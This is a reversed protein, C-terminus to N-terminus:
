QLNYDIKYKVGNKELEIRTTSIATITMGDLTDGKSLIRGNVLVYQSVDGFLSNGTVSYKNSIDISGTSETTFIVFNKVNRIGNIEGVASLFTAFQEEDQANARGAFILEGNSFQFSVGGFGRDILMKQIQTNLINEVVIQNDLLNLYPFFANIYEQLKVAEEETALYGRVVFRGPQTATVLVGRWNPNKLILANMQDFVREDIVVNDETCTIFTMCKILYLMEGHESDTLVHGTLFLKGCSPNYSFQVGPFPALTEKIAKSEDYREVVITQGRFLALVGVVGVFLVVAFISAMILHRTPVFVEKINKPEPIQEPTPESIEETKKESYSFGAPSYITERSRERDILIFSTTGLSILDQSKLPLSGDVKESNVLIGNRSHLDEISLEGSPTLSIRAHQRSVSLDQFVIDCLSADKGLVYSEGVHMGFEAGQNPGSIVKLMWRSELPENFPLHMEPPQDGPRHADIEEDELPTFEEQPNKTFRFYSNGIQISDNEELKYAEEIPVGNVLAPNVSSLNEIFYEGEVLRIEAHRRSVMPDELVFFCVDPDRGLTWEDGEKLSIVIGTQPGDECILFASM